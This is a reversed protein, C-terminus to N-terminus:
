VLRRHKGQEHLLFNSGTDLQRELLYLQCALKDTNSTQRAAEETPDIKEVGRFKARDDLLAQSVKGYDFFTAALGSVPGVLWYQNLALQLGINRSDPFISPHMDSPPYYGELARLQSATDTYVSSDTSSAIALVPTKRYGIGLCEIEPRPPM